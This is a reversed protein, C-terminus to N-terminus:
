SSDGRVRLSEDVGDSKNLILFEGRVEWGEEGVVGGRWGGGGIEGGKRGGAM